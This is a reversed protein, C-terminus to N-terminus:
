SRRRIRRDKEFGLRLRGDDCGLVVARPEEGDEPEAPQVDGAKEDQPDPEGPDGRGDGDREVREAHERDRGAVVPVEAVPGVLGAQDEPLEEPDHARHGHLLAGLPPGRRVATVM